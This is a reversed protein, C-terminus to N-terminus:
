FPSSLFSYSYSLAVVPPEVGVGSQGQNNDDTHDASNDNGADDDDVKNGDNDVSNDGSGDVGLADNRHITDFAARRVQHAAQKHWFGCLWM